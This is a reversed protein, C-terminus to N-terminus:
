EGKKFRMFKQEARQWDELEMMDAMQEITRGCLHYGNEVMRTVIAIKEERM